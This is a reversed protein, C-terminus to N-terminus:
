WLVIIKGGGVAALFPAVPSSVALGWCEYTKVWPLVDVKSREEVDKIDTWTEDVTILLTYLNYM